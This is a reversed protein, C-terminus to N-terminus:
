FLLLLVNTKSEAGMQGTGERSVPGLPEVELHSRVRKVSNAKRKFVSLTHTHKSLSRDQSHLLSPSLLVSGQTQILM